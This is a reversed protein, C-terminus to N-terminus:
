RTAFQPRLEREGIGVAVLGRCELIEHARPRGPRTVLRGQPRRAEFPHRASRSARWGVGSAQLAVSVNQHCVTMDIGIDGHVALQNPQRRAEEILPLRLHARGIPLFSKQAGHGLPIGEPGGRRAGAAAHVDVHAGHERRVLRRVRHNLAYQRGKTDLAVGHLREEEGGREGGPDGEIALEADIAGLLASHGRM